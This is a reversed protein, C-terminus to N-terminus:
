MWFVINKMVLTTKEKGKENWCKDYEDNKESTESFIQYQNKNNFESWLPNLHLSSM